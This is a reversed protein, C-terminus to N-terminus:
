GGQGSRGPFPLSSAGRGPQLADALGLAPSGDELGPPGVAFVSTALDSVVAVMSGVLASTAVRRLSAIEARSRAALAPAIWGFAAARRLDRRARLTLAATPPDDTTVAPWTALDVPLAAATLAALARMAAPLATLALPAWVAAPLARAASDFDVRASVACAAAVVSATAAGVVVLAGAFAGALAAALGAAFAAVLVVAALDVVVVAALAVM